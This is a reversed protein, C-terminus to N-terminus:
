AVINEVLLPWLVITAVAAPTSRIILGIALGFLGLLACFVVIGLSAAFFDDVSTVDLASDPVSADVRSRVLTNVLTLGAVVVVVSVVIAVAAAVVAKAAVVRVRRPTAAFTPRITNFGYEGTISTAGIVGLLMSTIIMGGSVLQFQDLALLNEADSFGAFLGAAVLPFVIAIIFLVWNMRITRTKIWESRLVSM